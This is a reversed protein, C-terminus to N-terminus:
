LFFFIFAMEDNEEVTSRGPSSHNTGPSHGVTLWVLQLRVALIFNFVSIACINISKTSPKTFLDHTSDPRINMKKFDPWVIPLYEFHLSTIRLDDCKKLVNKNLSM